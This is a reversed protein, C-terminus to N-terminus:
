GKTYFIRIFVGFAGFDDIWEHGIIDLVEIGDGLVKIEKSCNRLLSALSDEEGKESKIELMHVTQHYAIKQEDGGFQSRLKLADRQLRHDSKRMTYIETEILAEDASSPATKLELYKFGVYGYQEIKDALNELMKYVPLHENTTNSQLSLYKM